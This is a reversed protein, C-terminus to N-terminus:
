NNYLLVFPIIQWTSVNTLHANVLKSKGESDFDRHTNLEIKKNM